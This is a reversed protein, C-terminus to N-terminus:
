KQSKKNETKGKLILLHNKKKFKPEKIEKKKM